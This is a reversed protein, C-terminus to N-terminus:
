LTRAIQSSTTSVGVVVYMGLESSWVSSWWESNLPLNSISWDYGNSSIMVRNTGSAAVAVFIGLEPSWTVSRWANQQAAVRPEWNIGDESTMVRNTGGAAVAVFIGLEPSWIVSRWLNQEAALRPTWNIGDESTMVKNTGESAVAVFIGLESSWTVSQWNNQESAVRPTWNIGNESTMVRNTGLSAVAVFIGLEPSWTVSQWNNQEAAVRPEWIIGDESTMVRNTGDSSVAVFIGLEPSWTVSLWNNDVTSRRAWNIGDPSTMARGTGGNGVAVFIGLEPSWTVSRWWNDGSMGDNELKWKRVVSKGWSGHLYDANNRYNDIYEKNSLPTLYKNSVNLNEVEIQNAKRDNYFDALRAPSILLEGSPTESVSEATTALYNTTLTYSTLPTLILVDNSTGRDVDTNQSLRVDIHQTVNLTTSLKVDDLGEESEIQSASEISHTHSSGTTTDTSNNDLDSPTGLSIIRNSTKDGGGTLGDSAVVNNERTNTLDDDVTECNDIFNNFKQPYGTEGEVFRFQNYDTM